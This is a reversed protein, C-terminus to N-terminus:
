SPTSAAPSFLVMKALETVLRGAVTQASTMHGIIAVVGESILERDAAQAGESTGRDDRVLLEIPRGAVGGAANIAEVALQAGNRGHVGLDAQRGTLEGAFGVRIPSRYACGSLPLGLSSGLVSAAM